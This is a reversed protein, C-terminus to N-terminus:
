FIRGSRVEGTTVDFRYVENERTKLLFENLHNLKPYEKDNSRWIYHGVTPRVSRDKKILNKTSYSKLLKGNHYFAVAMDEASPKDGVAWPGMRVLHEGNASLYVEFAYWGEVRWLEESEGSSLLRYAVGYPPDIESTSNKEQNEPVMKFYFSSYLASKVYPFPIGPSDAYSTVSFLFIVLVSLLKNM